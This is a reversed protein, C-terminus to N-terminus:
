GAVIQHINELDDRTLSLVFSEFDEQSDFFDNVFSTNIIDGFANNGAFSAYSSWPHARLIKIARNHDKVGRERWEPMDHDLANSAIYAMIHRAYQDSDIRKMKYRGQFLAGVRGYKLNFFSTYGAGLKQLFLAQGDDERPRILLHYHNPMLIFSCIDVLQKGEYLSGVGTNEGKLFERLVVPRSNNFARMGTVFRQYFAASPFVVRKEVGRNYVHYLEGAVVRPRVIPM